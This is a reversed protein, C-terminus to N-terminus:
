YKIKLNKKRTYIYNKSLISMLIIKWELWKRCIYILESYVIEEACYKYNNMLSVWELPNTNKLNEDIPNKDLMQKILIKLREKAQKDTDVIHKRLSGEMFMITYDAKKYKKLYELRLHGYKGIHYNKEYENEALYLDPIFYDGERHYTIERM